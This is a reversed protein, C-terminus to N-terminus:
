LLLFGELVETVSDILSNSSMESQWTPRLVRGWSSVFDRVCSMRQLKNVGADLVKAVCFELAFM